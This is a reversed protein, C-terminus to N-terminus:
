RDRVEGLAYRAVAPEPRCGEATMRVLQLAALRELTSDVLAIEAGPETVSKRWHKKHEDILSKVHLELETCTVVRAPDDKLAAALYEALLLALHGETGQEPMELDTLLGREDIMAIGERRVEASLGTAESIAGLLHPRQHTLYRITDEDLTDYYLVPEDLLTRVLTTRIRRNRGEDTDPLLEETLQEVRADLSAAEITSPGRQVILLSAMAPRHISYLVDGQESVFREENGDVRELVRHDLLLRVAAVLDRRHDRRRLDLSFDFAEDEALLACVDDALRGLTTQRDSRELSALALCLIVYRRRTFPQKTKADRAGRTGDAHQAALKWLRAREADIELRWGAHRQFWERLWPGHRQVLRLERTHPGEAQLLPNMLLARVARRREILTAQDLDSSLRSM